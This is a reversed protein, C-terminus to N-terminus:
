SPCHHIRILYKALFCNWQQGCLTGLIHITYCVYVLVCVAGLMGVAGDLPANQGKMYRRGLYAPLLGIVIFVSPLRRCLGLEVVSAESVFLKRFLVLSVVIIKVPELYETGYHTFCFNCVKLAKVSYNVNLAM